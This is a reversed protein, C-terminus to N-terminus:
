NYIVLIIDNDNVNKLMEPKSDSKPFDIAKIYAFPKNDPTIGAPWLFPMGDLDNNIEALPAEPWGIGKYDPAEDIYLTIIKKSSKDYILRSYKLSGSKASNPSSYDKTYTIFLYKDSEYLKPGVLKDKLSFDVDIGENSSKIGMDGINLIYRPTLINPTSFEYLTDNFSQRVHYVGDLLYSDGSEVGRMVSKKYDKVPDFDKFKCITDGYASMITLFDTEVYGKRGQYLIWVNEIFMSNRVIQSLESVITGLRLKDNSQESDSINVDQTNDDFAIMFTKGEPRDEYKYYLQGENWFLDTAGYFKNYQERSVSTWGDSSDHPFFNKCIYRKFDGQRDFQAIGKSNDLIYIYDPSIVPRGRVSDPTQKIVIYEIKDFFHSLKIKGSPNTRNGIIDIVVPPNNTDIRRIEEYRLGDTYNAQQNNGGLGEQMSLTEKVSETASENSSKAGNGKCSVCCILLIIFISRM